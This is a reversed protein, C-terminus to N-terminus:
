QGLQIRDDAAILSKNNDAAQHCATRVISSTNTSTRIRSGSTFAASM